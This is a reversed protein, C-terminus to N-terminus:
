TRQDLNQDVVRHQQHYIYKRRQRQDANRSYDFLYYVADLLFYCRHSHTTWAPILGRKGVALKRSRSM